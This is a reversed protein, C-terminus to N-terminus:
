PLPQDASMIARYLQQKCTMLYEMRYIINELGDDVSVHRLLEIGFDPFMKMEDVLRARTYLYEVVMRTLRVGRLRVPQQTQRLGQVPCTREMQGVAM